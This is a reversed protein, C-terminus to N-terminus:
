YFDELLMISVSFFLNYRLELEALTLRVEPNKFVRYFRFRVYICSFVSQSNVEQFIAIHLWGIKSSM